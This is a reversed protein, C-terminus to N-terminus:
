AHPADGDPPDDEPYRDRAGAPEPPWAIQSVEVKLHEAIKRKETDSLAAYGCEALSMKGHSFGAAAALEAQTIGSVQRIFKLDM